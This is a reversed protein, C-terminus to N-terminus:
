EPQRDGDIDLGLRRRLVGGTQLPLQGMAAAAHQQQFSIGSVPFTTETFAVLGAGIGQQALALHEPIRGEAPVAARSGATEGAGQPHRIRGQHLAQEAVNATTGGQRPHHHAQFMQRDFVV